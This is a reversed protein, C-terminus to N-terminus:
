HTFYSFVLAAAGFPAFGPATHLFTDRSHRLRAFEFALSPGRNWFGESKAIRYSALRHREIGM